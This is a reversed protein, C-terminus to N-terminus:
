HLVIFGYKGFAASGAPGRLFEVFAAAQASAGTTLAVPYTIPLHSSAPFVDVIRVGPELRADTLYVIGLPAEGRAVFALATRVNDARVLHDALEGWVGFTTLAARAYRGVPVSDPDGTALRGGKLAALLKFNPEVKLQLTSDAPAVLALRNGLLDRRSGKQVLGRQDLYDMWEQDASFFVDAHAGSEIQRALMSTAAFSFGVTNGTEKTYEAGLEQLVNTLSAAAFVTVADPRAAAGAAGAASAASAAPALLLMGLAIGALLRKTM